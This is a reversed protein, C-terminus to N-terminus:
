DLLLLPMISTAGKPKIHPGRPIVGTSQAIEGVRVPFPNNNTLAIAVPAGHAFNRLFTAEGMEFRFQLGEGSQNGLIDDGSDRYQEFFTRLIIPTGSGAAPIVELIFDGYSHFPIYNGESDRMVSVNFDDFPVFFDFSPKNDLDGVMANELAPSASMVKFDSLISRSGPPVTVPADCGIRYEGHDGVFLIFQEKSKDAAKQMEQSVLYMSRALGNFDGPFDWGDTGANPDSDSPPGGVSHVTTNPQGEFAKKIADRDASDYVQQKEGNADLEPDATDRNRRLRSGPSGAYVVIHRSRVNGDATAPELSFQSLPLGGGTTPHETYLEGANFRTAEGDNHVSQGTRGAEPKLGKAAGEHYGGYQAPEDPLSASMTATNPHNFLASSAFEGGFCQGFILLRQSEDPVASEILQSLQQDSIFRERNLDYRVLGTRSTQAFSSGDVLLCTLISFVFCAALKRM